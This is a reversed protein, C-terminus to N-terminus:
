RSQTGGGARLRRGGDSPVCKPTTIIRVTLLFKTGDWIGMSDDNDDFDAREFGFEDSARWLNKNAKVFISAGLEIPELESDDYPQVTTSGPLLLRLVLLLVRSAHWCERGGIYPNSDFIDIEVNLGYREKAKGIWFAASAGGAGAGVIAIRPTTDEVVPLALPVQEDNSRASVWPLHFPLKFAAAAESLGYVVLVVTSLYM